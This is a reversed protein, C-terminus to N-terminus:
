PFDHFKQLFIKYSGQYKPGVIPPLEDSDNLFKAQCDPLPISVIPPFYDSCIEDSRVASQPDESEKIIPGHSAPKLEM